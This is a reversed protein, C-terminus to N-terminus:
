KLILKLSKKFIKLKKDKQFDKIMATSYLTGSPYTNRSVLIGITSSAIICYVTIIILLVFLLFKYLNPYKSKDFIFVKNFEEKKLGLSRGIERIRYLEELLKV